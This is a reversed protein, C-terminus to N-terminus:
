AFLEPVVGATEGGRLAAANDAIRKPPLFLGVCCLVLVLLEGFPSGSPAVIAVEDAPVDRPDAPPPSVEIIPPM